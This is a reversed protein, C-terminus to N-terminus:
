PSFQSKPCVCGADLEESSVPLPPRPLLSDNLNGKISIGVQVIHRVPKVPNYSCTYTGDKNDKVSVPVPNYNNDIVSVDVPAIGANQANVTFTTPIGNQVGSPQVGPGSVVVQFYIFAVKVIFNLLNVYYLFQAAIYWLLLLITM